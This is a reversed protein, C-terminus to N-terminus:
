LKRIKSVGGGKQPVVPLFLLISTLLKRVFVLHTSHKTSCTWVGGIMRMHFGTCPTMQKASLSKLIVWFFYGSQMSFSSPLQHCRGSLRWKEMIRWTDDDNCVIEERNRWNKLLIKKDQQNVPVRPCEFGCPVRDVTEDGPCRLQGRPASYSKYSHENQMTKCLNWWEKSLCSTQCLKVHRSQSANTFCKCLM